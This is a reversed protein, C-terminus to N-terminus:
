KDEYYVEWAKTLEEITMTCPAITGAIEACISDRYQELGYYCEGCVRSAECKLRMDVALEYADKRNVQRAMNADGKRM